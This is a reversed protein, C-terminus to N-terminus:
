RAFKMEREEVIITNSQGYPLIMYKKGGAAHTTPLECNVDIVVAMKYSNSKDISAPCVTDGIKFKAASKVNSIYGKAYKNEMFKDWQAKTPIFKDDSLISDRMERFYPTSLKKHISAVIKMDERKVDTFDDAFAKQIEMNESSFKDLIKKFTGYQGPTLSGKRDLYQEISTLFDKEWTSTKNKLLFHIKNKIDPDSCEQQTFNVTSASTQGGYTYPRRFRSGYFGM